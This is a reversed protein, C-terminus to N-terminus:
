SGQGPHFVDGWALIVTGQSLRSDQRGKGPARFTKQAYQSSKVHGM